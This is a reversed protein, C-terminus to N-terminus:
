GRIVVQLGQDGACGGGHMGHKDQRPIQLELESQSDEEEELQLHESHPHLLHLGSPPSLHLVSRLVQQLVLLRLLQLNHQVLTSHQNQCKTKRNLHVSVM